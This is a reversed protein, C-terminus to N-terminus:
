YGPVRVVLGCLRDLTVSLGIHIIPDLDVLGVSCVDLFNHPVTYRVRV